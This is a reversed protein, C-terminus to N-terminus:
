GGSVPAVYFLAQITTGTPANNAGTLELITTFDITGSAGTQPINIRKASWGAVVGSPQSMDLYVDVAGSPCPPHFMRYRGDALKTATVGPIGASATPSIGATAGYTRFRHSGLCAHEGKPGWTNLPFQPAEGATRTAM